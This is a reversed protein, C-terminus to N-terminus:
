SAQSAERIWMPIGLPLTSMKTTKLKKSNKNKIYLTKGAQIIHVM